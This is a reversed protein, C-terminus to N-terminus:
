RFSIWNIRLLQDSFPMLCPQGRLGRSNASIIASMSSIRPFLCIPSILILFSFIYDRTYASLRIMSAFFTSLIFSIIFLVSLNYKYISLFSIATLRLFTLFYHAESFSTSSPFFFSPSPFSFFLLSM